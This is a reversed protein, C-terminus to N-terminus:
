EAIATFISYQGGAGATNLKKGRVATNDVITAVEIDDDTGQGTQYNASFGWTWARGENDIAISHDAGAAVYEAKFGPVATPEFLVRARNRDDKIVASDSLTDVKLGSQFGDLRGWVLCDGDTTRALTHHSGGCIQVVNKDKLSDVVTPHLIVAEDDGAGQQIGTECYSNLGWGYVKGSKHVAFSHFSGCGVHTINKPLGFERPQLGNLKNREVIRRGLQNQQGSGWAFVAGRNDIALAHNDGCAVHTIKKLGSILKPTSQIKTEADFGIIGENGRFTGWGYVLGDDTLAFSSSDGAAVQVIVTGEPFADSPIATPTSEYPNLGSDSGSDSSADSKADDIDKLGGEWTTDRGLAGQDNVGWTLVRGDHTLAVCHMGGAAVQVVGVDEPALLANLRPRKVDVTGKAAGLGLEGQSGEGCVFVRLKQTPAKNIVVKPKPKRTVPAKAVRARKPKPEAAAKEVEEDASTKRKRAPPAPAGAVAGAARANSATKRKTTAKANAGVAAKAADTKLKTKKTETASATSKKKAASAPAAKKVGAKKAMTTSTKEKTPAKTTTPKARTAARAPAM